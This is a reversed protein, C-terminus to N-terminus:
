ELGATPGLCLVKGRERERERRERERESEGEGGGRGRERDTLTAPLAQRGTARGASRRTHVAQAARTTNNYRGESAETPAPVSRQFTAACCM